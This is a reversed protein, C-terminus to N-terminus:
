QPQAANGFLDYPDAGTITVDVFGREACDDPGTFHVLNDIDPADATTRGIFQGPASQRDTLVRLRQGVLGENRALSLEQQLAMLAERRAQAVDNPVAPEKIRMAPTGEEPSYCFVGMREFRFERVFAELEAFDADTEGPFGVIFTTRLALGPVGERLRRLLGRTEDGKMKRGMLKLMPDSIHQLPMDLYPVIHRSAALQPILSEPFCRPYAYLLRLWYEGEGATELEHLLAGITAGDARDVGYRTSDQAVLNIEKVGQQLLGRAENVISAIARSRQKGRIAPIACYTCTHDCGEAIKIYTTSPTTLLLRPRENDYVYTPTGYQDRVEDPQQHHLLAQLKRAIEPEEDLGLFLDVQPFKRRAGPLDRQPLCGSVVVRRGRRGRKWKLAAKIEGESEKRAANIFSCTNILTIDADREENTLV